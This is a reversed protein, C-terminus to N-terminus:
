EVAQNSKCDPLESDKQLYVLTTPLKINWEKVLCPTESDKSCVPIDSVDVGHDRKIEEIISIYLPDDITPPNGGNWIENTAMYHLVTETYALQVPIVVRAAGARLFDTFLPDTDTLPFIDMWRKKDGWFYPYFRYTINDWEFAQEFFQIIKGEVLAENIQIEPFAFTGTSLSSFEENLRWVGGVRTQAFDNTLLRLAGKRLEEREIKRNLDPNRGQIQIGAQIQSADIQANYDDLADKYAKMIAAYAKLQWEEHKKASIRCRAVLSLNFGLCNAIVTFPVTGQVESFTGSGSSLNVGAVLCDLYTGNYGNVVKYGFVDICRYDDPLTLKNEYMKVININADKDTSEAASASIYIFETPYPEADQVNYQSILDMYNYKDIHYPALPRGGINPPVPKSNKVGPITKNSDVYLYFAAPEPIIFELMLRRGYNILKAKYYKDVWRYIGVVNSSNNPQFGHENTEEIRELTRRTRVERARHMVRQVSKDTIERAFSSASQNSETSTQSTAYDAHATMKVAGYSATVSVGADIKTLNELTNSSEKQLEFRETSQLDKENEELDESETIITEEHESVRSHIRKKYESQLVNEIHAIEGTCYHDLEQKVVLLDGVGLPQIGRASASGPDPSETVQLFANNVVPVNELLKQFKEANWVYNLEVIPFSNIYNSAVQYKEREMIEKIDEFYVGRSINLRLLLEQTSSSVYTQDTFDFTWPAHMTLQHNDRTVQFGEIDQSKTRGSNLKDNTINILRSQKKHAEEIKTIEDIARNLADFQEFTKNLEHLIQKSYHNELSKDLTSIKPIVTSPIIARVLALEGASLPKDHYDQTALLELLHIARVGDYVFERDEPHKEPVLTHAYLRDWAMDKLFQARESQLFLSLDQGLVYEAEQIAKSVSNEHSAGRAARQIITLHSTQENQDLRESALQSAQSRADPGKLQEIKAHFPSKQTASYSAFNRLLDNESAKQVPRVNVFRFIEELM